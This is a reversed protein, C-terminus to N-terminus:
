DFKVNGRPKEVELIAANGFPVPLQIQAPIPEGKRTAAKWPPMIRLVRLAEADCEPTLGQAVTLNTLDGDTEVTCTVLVSGTIQNVRAAAPYQVNQQFFNNLAQQGGPFQPAVDPRNAAPNQQPQMHGPKLEIPQKAPLTVTQAQAAVALAVLLLIFFLHKM